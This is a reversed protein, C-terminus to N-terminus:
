GTFSITTVKFNYLNVPLSVQTLLPHTRRLEEIKADLMRKRKLGERFEDERLEYNDRLKVEFPDDCLVMSFLAVSLRIDRYLPETQGPLRPKKHLSKLWKFVSVMEQQCAESFQYRYPFCVRLHAIGVLGCKNIPAKICLCNLIWKLFLILKVLLTVECDFSIREQKLDLDNDTLKWNLGEADIISHGDFLLACRPLNLEFTTRPHGNVM